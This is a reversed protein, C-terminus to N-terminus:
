KKKNGQNEVMSDFKAKSIPTAETFFKELEYVVRKAGPTVKVPFKMWDWRAPVDGFDYYKTRSAMLVRAVVRQALAEKSMSASGGAKKWADDYMKKMKANAAEITKMEEPTLDKRGAKKADAEISRVKEYVKHAADKAKLIPKLHLQMEGVHGGPYEVSLLMDRYGGETPHAFRDKPKRALKLGMSKLKSVVDELQNMSDVAVSSRVIDGLKSWDGGYDADVKEKSRERSKLPGILIVPGPKDFDVKDGEDARIVTAGIKKDLGSGRDLLDLQKQQAKKAQAFLKDPDKVKQSVKDPLKATEGESFLAKRPGGKPKEEEKKPKEEQKKVTHKSKDAKPHEHLYEKLAEPTAFERAERYRSLVREAITPM